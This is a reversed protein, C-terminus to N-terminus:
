GAAFDLFAGCLRRGHQNWGALYADTDARVAAPDALEAPGAVFWHELMHRTVEAHFQIGWTREGLRYAQRATDSEALLEAGAPLDFTYYHWQFADVRGPLVGIVPDRRGADNLHVGYWGVEARAAPGVHTGAARAILQSGLCVGLLPVERDLTERIFAAEEALWPHEADQDPHMAGGFVMIADYRDPADPGADGNVTVWRELRDGRLEVLDEFLGGGGTSAADHVISLVRM